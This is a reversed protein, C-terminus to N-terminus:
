PQSQQHAADLKYYLSREMLKIHAYYGNPDIYPNPVRVKSRVAYKERLDFFKGQAGLFIDCPLTKLLTFASRYDEVLMPNAPDVLSRADSSMDGMLVVTYANGQEMAKWVCTTNGPTHGPTRYATITTGDLYVQERDHLRRDVKVAPGVAGSEVAEVDQNMVVLQAGTLKKVLAAGEAHDRHAHTLLIIRIDQFRFKLQEVSKQILPVGLECTTDILIHGQATTILYSADDAQGVYWVNGVINHAPFAASDQETTHLAFEDGGPEWPVIIPPLTDKVRQANLATMLIGALLLFLLLTRTRL